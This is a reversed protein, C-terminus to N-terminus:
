LRPRGARFAEGVSPGVAEIGPVDASELWRRIAATAQVDGQNYTLLWQRADATDDGGGVAMDYRMMSEAGGADDVQWSFGVLPAVVKLGSPGGTVVQRNWVDLMDVWEDSGIFVEVEDGIGSFLGLRRLYGNEASANWCYARFSLDRGHAAARVAMLWRWFELSNAGEVEPTMVEWTSFARYGDREVGLGSRDTVLAGWLYCGAEVNEMDVDVEVHARPVALEALGRRRYAPEPGLAARALDIQVPLSAMGTGSYEATRADLAVVDGVTTVGAALLVDLQKGGVLDAVPVSVPVDLVSVML